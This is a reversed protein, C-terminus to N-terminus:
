LSFGAHPWTQHGIRAQLHEINHRLCVGLGCWVLLLISQNHQHHSLNGEQEWAEQILSRRLSGSVGM